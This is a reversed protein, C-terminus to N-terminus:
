FVGMGLRFARGFKPKNTSKAVQFVKSDAEDEDEGFLDEAEPISHLFPIEELRPSPRAAAAPQTSSRFAGSQLAIASM